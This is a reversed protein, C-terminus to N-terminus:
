DEKIGIEIYTVLKKVESVFNPMRSFVMKAQDENYLHTSENRDKLFGFWMEPNDIVGLDAAVRFADRPSAVGLGKYQAFEQISKWALEFTFEFRQIVGDRDLEDHVNALGSELQDLAKKLEELKFKPNM